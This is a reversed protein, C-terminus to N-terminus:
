RGAWRRIEAPCWARVRQSANIKPSPFGPRKSIKDRVTKPQVGLFAAIQKIGWRETPAHLEDDTLTIM